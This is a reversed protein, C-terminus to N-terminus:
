LACCSSLPRPSWQRSQVISRDIYRVRQAITISKCHLLASNVMISSWFVDIRRVTKQQLRYCIWRECLLIPVNYCIIDSENIRSSSKFKWCEFKLNNDRFKSRHLALYVSIQSRDSSLPSITQHFRLDIQSRPHSDSGPDWKKLLWFHWGHWGDRADKGVEVDQLQFYLETIGWSNLASLGGSMRNASMGLWVTYILCKLLGETKSSLSISTKSRTSSLMTISLCIDPAHRNHNSMWCNIESDM